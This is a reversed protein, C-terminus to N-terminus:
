PVNIHTLTFDVFEAANSKDEEAKTNWDAGIVQWGDQKNLPIEVPIVKIATWSTEPDYECRGLVLNIKM